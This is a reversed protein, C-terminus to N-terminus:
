SEGLSLLFQILAKRSNTLHLRLAEITEAENRGAALKLINLHEIVAPVRHEEDLLQPRLQYKMLFVFSAFFSDFFRNSCTQLFTQHMKMDLDHFRTGSSDAKWVKLYEEHDKTLRRIVKWFADNPATQIATRIAHSEVLLRMEFLEEIMAPSPKVVRWRQRPKREILGTRSIRLLAERISSRNCNSERALELESFPQDLPFHDRGLKDLVFREASELKTLPQEDIDFFDDPSPTRAVVKSKGELELVGLDLLRQIAKRVTTRSVELTDALVNESPLPEAHSGNAGLKELLANTCAKYAIGGTAM